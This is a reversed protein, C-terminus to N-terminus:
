LSKLALTPNRSRKLSLCPMVPWISTTFLFTNVYVYHARPFFTEWVNATSVFGFVSKVCIFSAKQPFCSGFLCEMKFTLLATSSFVTFLANGDENRQLWSPVSLSSRNTIPFYALVMSNSLFCCPNAGQLKCPM